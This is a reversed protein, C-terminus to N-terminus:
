HKISITVVAGGEPHNSLTFRLLDGFLLTLRSYINLLGMGNIKLNPIRVLPDTKEFQEQLHVIADADFGQGNDRITLEWGGPLTRGVITIIWPPDIHIAYKMCNEVIPQLMLKPVDLDLLSDSVDIHVVIDDEYRLRMLNLYSRTHELEERFKVPAAHESSIYRLMASLNECVEVISQQGNEEAMISVNTITNYLFHPNMQAQLAFMRAELEHARSAIAEQLSEQLRLRMDLFSYNLQELENLHSQSEIPQSLTPSLSTLSLSRISRHIKKIPTTLTKSVMYSILLTILIAILGFVLIVNRFTTVPKLLLNKSEAAIVTWESFDSYKYSIMDQSQTNANKIIFNSTNTHTLISEWYLQATQTTEMPYILDGNKNFVYVTIEQGAQSDPKVLASKIINSFVHYDQQIELISTEIEGWSPSFARSLSIVTPTKLNWVDQKHLSILKTGHNSFANQIWQIKAIQEPSIISFVSNDGINAFEGSKQFMNIQSFEKNLGIISYLIDNFQRQQDITSKNLQFMDSFFLRNLPKSFLLKQSTSNMFQLQSDFEATIHSSVQYLSESAKNELIKSIYVYFSSVFVLIVVIILLSYSLFLKSQITKFKFM